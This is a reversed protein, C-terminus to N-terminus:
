KQLPTFIVNYLGYSDAKDASDRLIIALLFDIKIKRPDILYLLNKIELKVSIKVRRLLHQM